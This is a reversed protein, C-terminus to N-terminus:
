SLLSSRRTRDTRPVTSGNSSRRSDLSQLKLELLRKAFNLFEPVHRMKSRGRTRVTYHVPVEAIRAGSLALRAAVELVFEFGESEIERIYLASRRVARLGTYLDSLGQQFLLNFLLTVLGNGLRRLLPMAAESRAAGAFRSGYVAPSTALAAILLPIDEPHYELDADIMVILEGDGATIGDKLSRGYGLNEAHRVLTVGPLQGIVDLSGDTSGNDVFIIRAGPCAKCLRSHLEVLTASENFVPIVVDISARM